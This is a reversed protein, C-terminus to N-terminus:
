QDLRCNVNDSAGSAAAIVGVARRIAAQEVNHDIAGTADFPVVVGPAILFASPYTRDTLWCSNREVRGGRQGRESVAPAFASGFIASGNAPADGTSVPPAFADTTADPTSM